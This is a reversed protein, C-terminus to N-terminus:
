IRQMYKSGSGQTYMYVQSMLLSAYLKRLFLVEFCLM